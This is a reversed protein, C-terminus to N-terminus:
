SVLMATVTHLLRAHSGQAHAVEWVSHVLIPCCPCLLGSVCMEMVWSACIWQPHLPSQGPRRARRFIGLALSVFLFSFAFAAFAYGTLDSWFIHLSPQEPTTRFAVDVLAEGPCSRCPLAVATLLAISTTHVPLAHQEPTARLCVDVLAEGPCSCCPMVVALGDPRALM